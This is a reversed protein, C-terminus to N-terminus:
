ARSNTPPASADRDALYIATNGDPAGDKGVLNEVWAIKKGDPSITTQVFTRAAFLSDIVGDLPTIAKIKEAIKASAHRNEKAGV